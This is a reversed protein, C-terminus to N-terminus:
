PICVDDGNAHQCHFAPDIFAQSVHYLRCQVSDGDVTGANPDASFGGIDPFTECDDRCTGQDPYPFQDVTEVGCAKELLLCFTECNEGCQGDTGPGATPCEDNPGILEAEEANGLRCGVTNGIESPDNFGPLNPCVQNCNAESSYQQNADTCNTTVTTCYQDCLNGPAEGGAGGGGVLLPDLEADEIGLVADCALLAASMSILAIVPRLPFRMPQMM